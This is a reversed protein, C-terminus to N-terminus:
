RGPHRQPRKGIPGRMGVSLAEGCVIGRHVTAGKELGQAKGGEGGGSGQAPHFGGPRFVAIVFARDAVMEVPHPEERRALRLVLSKQFEGAPLEAAPTLVPRVAKRAREPVLRRGLHLAQARREDAMGREQDLHRPEVDEGVRHKRLPRARDGECARLADICRADSEFIQRRDMRHQDRVVMVVM